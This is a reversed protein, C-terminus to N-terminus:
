DRDPILTIKFYVTLNDTVRLLGFLTVPPEINFDSMKIFVNGEVEIKGNKAASITTHLTVIKSVGAITLMGDAQTQSKKGNTIVSKIPSTIIYTITPYQVTNLTEYTKKNMTTGEVGISKISNARILIRVEDIDFHEEDAMAVSAIGDADEVFESWDRINSSGRIIFTYDQALKYNSQSYLPSGYLLIALTLIHKVASIM